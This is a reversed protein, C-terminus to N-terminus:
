GADGAVDGSSARYGQGSVCCGRGRACLTRACRWLRFQPIHRRGSLDALTFAAREPAKPGPVPADSQALDALHLSLDASKTMVQGDALVVTPLHMLPNIRALAARDAENDHINGAAVLDHPVAYFVLQLEVIASGWGPNEYLRVM